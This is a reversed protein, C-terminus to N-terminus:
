LRIRPDALFYLIDAILLALMKALALCFVIGLVVPFDRALVSDTLLTGMGPIAFIVELVLVGAVLSPIFGTILTILPLLANRLAHVAIVRIESLGKARATQIYELPLVQQLAQYVQSTLYPLIGIVLCVVPLTLHYLYSSFYAFLSLDAEASALGTVPFFRMLGSESVGILLVLAVIFLPVTDIAYLLALVSRQWNRRSPYSLWVALGVALVSALGLGLLVLWVTSNLAEGILSTVPRDDRTSFGLSGRFLQTVWRHYQNHIGHWHWVPVFARWPQARRTVDSFLSRLQCNTLPSTQCWEKLRRTVDASDTAKFLAATQQILLTRSPSAPINRLAGEAALLAQYYAAVSPWDGYQNLMKKLFWQDRPSLIRYLTDPEALSRLGGYFLPEDQGTKRLYQRFAREESQSDTPSYSSRSQPEFSFSSSQQLAVKQLLFLLTTILWLSPVLILLRRCIFRVM